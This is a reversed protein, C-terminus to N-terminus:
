LKKALWIILPPQKHPRLPVGNTAMECSVILGRQALDRFLLLLLM